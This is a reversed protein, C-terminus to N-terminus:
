RLKYSDIYIKLYDFYEDKTVPIEISIHKNEKESFSGIILISKDYDIGIKIFDCVTINTGEIVVNKETDDNHIEGEILANILFRGTYANFLTAVDLADEVDERKASSYQHELQNRKTNIKNLIRPSTIGLEKLISVKYPFRWNEEKSKRYLGFAFLLSDIQCDIARKVNSLANILHHEYNSNVDYEAYSLFDRSKIEFPIRVDCYTESIRLRPSAMFKQLSNLSIDDM